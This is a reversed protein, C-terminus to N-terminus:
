ERRKAVLNQYHFLELLLAPHDALPLLAGNDLIRYIEFDQLFERFDQFFTRAYVDLESFELQVMRIRGAAFADKAGKLVSLELGEVDVKM